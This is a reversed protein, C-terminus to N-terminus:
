VCTLNIELNIFFLHGVSFTFCRGKLYLNSEVKGLQNNTEFEIATMNRKVLNGISAEEFVDEFDFTVNNWWERILKETGLGDLPNLISLLQYMIVDPSAM